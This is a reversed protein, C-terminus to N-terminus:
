SKTTSSKSQSSLASKLAQITASQQAEVLKAKSSIQEVGVKIERKLTPDDQHPTFFGQFEDLQKTTSFVSATIRVFDGYDGSAKFLDILNTFSNQLWLWARDRGIKQRIIGAYWMIIDQPKITERNDLHKVIAELENEKTCYTLGAMIDDKLDPNTTAKYESFLQNILQGNNESSLLKAAIINPRLDADIQELNTQFLANLDNIVKPSRAEVALDVLINRLRYHSISENAQPSLGIQNLKATALEGALQNLSDLGLKDEAVITRLNNIIRALGLWTLYDSKHSFQEIQTVLNAYPEYNREALLLQCTLFYYQSVESSNTIQPLIDDIVKKDYQVVAYTASISNVVQPSIKTPKELTTAGDTLTLPIQWTQDSKYGFQEQSIQWNADVKILPFGPQNLWGPTVQDIPLQSLRKFIKLFDHTSACSYAHKQLYNQLGARFTEEGVWHEIMHMLCAGKSYVIAGDFITSIEEPQNIPTIIPQIGPLSDRRLASFLTGAYYNSSVHLEPRIADLCKIELISALSENLWLEDWWWMTVLNGFWMHALEHTIVTAISNRLDIPTDPQVLLLAERYTVLGWNEMAGAAFDPLAVHDCKPLPYPVGFYQEYWDLADIAIQLSYELEESKHARSAYTNIEVGSKTLGSIKILKGIVFGLTYSSMKPTTEFCVLQRNRKTTQKAVPTNSLVTQDADVILTLTFTAKAAPEDICPFAYRAYHSEFQTAIIEEKQGEFEYFCPYIGYMQETINNSFKIDIQQETAESVPITIIKQDYSFEVEAQNVIIQEIQLDVADLKIHTIEPSAKQGKLCVSGRYTRKKQNIDFTLQYHEPQFLKTLREMDTYQLM